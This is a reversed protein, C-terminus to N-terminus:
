GAIPPKRRPPRQQPQGRLAWATTPQGPAVRPQLEKPARPLAVLRALLAADLQPPPKPYKDAM